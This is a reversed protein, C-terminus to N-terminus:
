RRIACFNDTESPHRSSAAVKVVCSDCSRLRSAVLTVEADSIIDDLLALTLRTEL